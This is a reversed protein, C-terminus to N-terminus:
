LPNRKDQINEKERKVFTPLSNFLYIVAKGNREIVAKRQFEKM